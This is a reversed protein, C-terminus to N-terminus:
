QKNKFFTKLNDPHKITIGAAKPHGGGGFHSAIESLDPSDKHGRLSLWWEDSKFDYVWSISFDPLNSNPLKQKNLADGFESRLNPSIAGLWVDYTKEGVEFSCWVAKKLCIDIERYKITDLIKGHNLLKEIL